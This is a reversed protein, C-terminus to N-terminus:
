MRWRVPSFGFVRGQAEARREYALVSRSRGGKPPPKLDGGSRMREELSAPTDRWADLQTYRASISYRWPREGSAHERDCIHDEHLVLALNPWRPASFRQLIPLAERLEM